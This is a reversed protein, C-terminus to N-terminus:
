LPHLELWLKVFERSRLDEEALSSTKVTEVMQEVGPEVIRICDEIALLLQGKPVVPPQENWMEDVCWRLANVVLRPQRTEAFQRFVHTYMEESRARGYRPRVRWVEWFKDWNRACVYADLLRLVACEPPCPLAMNFFLEEFQAVVKKVEPLESDRVVLPALVSIIVDQALVAEGRTHMSEIVDLVFAYQQSIATAGLGPIALTASILDLYERRTFPHGQLQTEQFASVFTALDTGMAETQNITSQLRVRYKLKQAAPLNDVARDFLRLFASGLQVQQHAENMPLSEIHSILRDLVTTKSKIDYHLLEPLDRQVAASDFPVPGPKEAESLTSTPNTRTSGLTQRTLVSYFRRGSPLSHGSKNWSNTDSVPLDSFADRDPNYNQDQGQDQETTIGKKELSRRLKGAWLTELDLEKRRSEVMVQVVITTGMHPVGFGTPTGAEDTVQMEQESSGVTGLNVCIWGTSIGDDGGPAAKASGLMKAKRAQRRLKTKLENRGLLGDAKASIGRGRLWRVLRDASVHLHRESRATGFLMILDPGLAPPPDIERLDPLSLDDLGLDDSVFKILPEFLKPAGEPIDPLPPPEHLLTPHRPPEVELYWPVPEASENPESSSPGDNQQVAHKETQEELAFGKLAPATPQFTSFRLGTANFPASRIPGRQARIPAADTLFLRLASFRCASCGIARLTSRASM